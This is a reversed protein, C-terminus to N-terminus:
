ISFIIPYLYLLLLTNNYSDILKYKVYICFGNFSHSYIKEIINLNSSNYAAPANFRISRKAFEHNVNPIIANHCIRTAYNHQQNRFKIAFQKFYHPLQEHILKFIFKLLQCKYIDGIKLLCLQKFLPESHAFYSNGTIIRVAKKQLIHLRDNLHLKPGWLLVGYNLHCLILSNYITRMINIPLIHKLTNLIGITKSFKATLMDVHSTWNLHKNIIIGLFNFNDVFAPHLNIRLPAFLCPLFPTPITSDLSRFSSRILTLLILSITILMLSPTSSVTTFIM